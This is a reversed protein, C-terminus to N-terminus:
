LAYGSACKSCKYEGVGNVVWADCHAGGANIKHDDTLDTIAKCKRGIM